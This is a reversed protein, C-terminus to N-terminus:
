EYTRAAQLAAAVIEWVDSPIPLNNNVYYGRYDNLWGSLADLYSHLDANEWGRAGGELESILQELVEVAPNRPEVGAFDLPWPAIYGTHGTNAKPTCVMSDTAVSTHGTLIARTPASSGLHAV